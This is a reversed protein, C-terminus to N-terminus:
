YTTAKQFATEGATSITQVTLCLLRAPSLHHMLHTEIAKQFPALLSLHSGGCTLGGPKASTKISVKIRPFKMYKGLGLASLTHLM